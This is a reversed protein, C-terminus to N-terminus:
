AASHIINLVVISFWCQFSPTRSLTLASASCVFARPEIEGTSLSFFDLKLNLATIYLDVPTRIKVGM